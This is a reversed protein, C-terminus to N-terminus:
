LDYYVGDTGHVFARTSVSKERNYLPVGHRAYPVALLETPVVPAAGRKRDPVRAACVTTDTTVVKTTPWRRKRAFRVRRSGNNEM